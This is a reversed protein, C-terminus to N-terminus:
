SRREDVDFLREQHPSVELHDDVYGQSLTQLARRMDGAIARQDRWLGSALGASKPPRAIDVWCAVVASAGTALGAIATKNPSRRPSRFSVFVNNM